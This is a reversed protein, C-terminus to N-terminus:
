PVGGPDLESANYPGTRENTSAREGSVLAPDVAPAANGDWQRLYTAVAALEPDQLMDRWGPMAGNYVAGAVTVPGQMGHLLIRVLVEPSGTVWESGVLPPFAGPIGAGSSQHCAVCHKEYIARGSSVPDAIAIVNQLLSL